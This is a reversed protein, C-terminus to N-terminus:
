EHDAVATQTAFVSDCERKKEGLYGVFPSCPEPTVFSEVFGPEGPAPSPTPTSPPAAMWTAVRSTAEMTAQESAVYWGVIGQATPTAAAAVTPVAQAGSAVGAPQPVPTAVPLQPMGQPRIYIAQPTTLPYVPGQSPRLSNIGAQVVPAIPQGNANYNSTARQVAECGGFFMLWVAIGVLAIAKLGDM